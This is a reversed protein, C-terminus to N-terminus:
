PRSKLFTTEVVAALARAFRESGAPSFHVPDAFDADSFAGSAFPDVFSALGEAALNKAVGNYRELANRFGKVTLGPTWSELFERGATEMGPKEHLVQAVLLTSAGRSRAVAISCRLNRDYAAVAEDPIDDKRPGGRWEWAPSYGEVRAQSHGHLRDLVSEIFVSRSVLRLPVEEVGLVRPLIDAHGKTYDPTFPVHGAPQADNIGSFHVVLDPQLDLDRIELSILSELSTWGSLGANVVDVNAYALYAGLRAPWTATDDSALVDFTTSGGECVIRFRGAPKPVAVDKGRQGRGNLTVVHGPIEFRGYPRGAVVLYPHRVLTQGIRRTLATYAEARTRPWAGTKVRGAVRCGAELLLLLLVAIGLSFLVTGFLSRSRGSMM